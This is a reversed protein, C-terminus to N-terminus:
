RHRYGRYGGHWGGGHWFRGFEFSLGVALPFFPDYYYPNAYVPQQVYVPQPQVYVPQQTYVPESSYVPQSPATAIINGQADRRVPESSVVHWQYQDAPAQPVARSVYYDPQRPAVVCGSLGTLAVVATLAVLLIRKM